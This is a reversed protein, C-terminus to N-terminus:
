FFGGAYWAAVAASIGSLSILLMGTFPNQKSLRYKQFGLFGLLTFPIFLAAYNPLQVFYNNLLIIVGGCVFGWFITAAYQVPTLSNTTNGGEQWEDDWLKKEAAADALMEQKLKEDIDLAQYIKAIRSQSRSSDMEAKRTYYAGVAFLASVFLITIGTNLYISAMDMGQALLFCFLALIVILGEIVGIIFVPLRNYSKKRNNLLNYPKAFSLFVNM